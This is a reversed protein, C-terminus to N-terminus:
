NEELNRVHLQQIYQELTIPKQSNKVIKKSKKSVTAKNVKM